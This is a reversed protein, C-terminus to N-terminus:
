IKLIFFAKLEILALKVFHDFVSLCNTPLNSVIQKLTNSCKTPNASLPNLNTNKLMKLPSENLYIFGINPSPSLGVKLTAILKSLGCKTQSFLLQFIHFSSIKLKKVWKM